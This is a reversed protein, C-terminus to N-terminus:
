RSMTTDESSAAIKEDFMSLNMSLKRLNSFQRQNALNFQQKFWSVQKELGVIEQAQRKIKIKCILSLKPLLFVDTNISNELTKQSNEM